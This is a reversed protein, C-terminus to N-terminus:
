KYSLKSDCFAVDICYYIILPLMAIVSLWIVGWWEHIIESLAIEETWNRINNMTGVWDNSGASKAVIYLLIFVAQM